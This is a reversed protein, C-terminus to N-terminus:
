LESALAVLHLSVQRYRGGRNYAKNGWMSSSWSASFYGMLHDNQVPKVTYTTLWAGAKYRTRQFSYSMNVTRSALIHCIRKGILTQAKFIKNMFKKEINNSTFFASAHNFCIRSKVSSCSCKRQFARAITGACIRVFQCVLLVHKVADRQHNWVNSWHELVAM